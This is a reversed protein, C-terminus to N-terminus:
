RESEQIIDDASYERKATKGVLCDFEIAGIGVGGTRKCTLNQESFFDGKAISEKAVVCKQLSKKTFKESETLQKSTQVGIYKEVKRVENVLLKLEDPQLSAKHDPGIMGKDLTFHKEIVRAGMPVSYPAAGVGKSHDSFGTLCLYRKKFEDIVCLNVETDKIPYNATCQLLILKPNYKEIERVAIDIEELNCMGTSLFIPKNKKAVRRLFPINTTDTSAIKYADVHIEELEELSEDDFPTSLFILGLEECYNKLEQMKDIDMQLRCLMDYQNEESDTTTKQYPAKAVNKLILKDPKFSQFKVADVGASKAQEILKKAINMEGNHNVGAEAIIFVPEKDSIIKNGIKIEKAFM